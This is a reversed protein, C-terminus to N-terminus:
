RFFRESVNLWRGILVVLLCAKWKALSRETCGTAYGEKEGVVM